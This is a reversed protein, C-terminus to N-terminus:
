GKAAGLAIDLRTKWNLPNEQAASTGSVDIKSNLM